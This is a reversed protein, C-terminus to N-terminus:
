KEKFICKGNSCNYQYAKGESNMRYSYDSEKDKKFDVYAEAGNKDDDIDIFQVNRISYDKKERLGRGQLNTHIGDVLQNFLSWNLNLHEFSETHRGLIGNDQIIKKNDDYTYSYTFYPEDKYVVTAYYGINYIPTYKGTIDQMEEQKYGKKIHLYNSTDKEIVKYNLPNGFIFYLAFLIIFLGVATLLLVWKKRKMCM